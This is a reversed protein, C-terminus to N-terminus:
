LGTQKHAKGPKGRRMLLVKLSYAAEAFDPSIRLADSYHRIASKLDGQRESVVGLNYHTKANDPEIQLAKSYHRIASELDGQLLLVGGLTNHAKAFDPKIRLAESYHHIARDYRKKEEWAIGLSHHAVYNDVTVDVAHSFLSFSDKWHRVQFWTSIMCLTLAFGALAALVIRRHRLKQTLEAAGWALIIFLGILPIYTYRDAMAQRGVQVLGIVPVLTGLYWLWGIIFYPHRQMARIFLLSLSLLLLGSLSAQWLAVTGPHPYLVALDHPWFMRGIYTVCSVLANAIRVGLPLGELPAVAEGQAIFTTVSLIGSLALLPVKELLIRPVTSKPPGPDAKDKWRRIQLRGLPWYDMLLLVFPLTVVMPKAMLGLAFFLVVLLYRMAGPREAYRVYAWMTLMWFLTSLVDKREAVWAVSEVHLPHIAFLAAVFASRWLSGTMRLFLLFLLLGNAVHFLLSTLHHMGPRLWFLQCDLMHSVWTLPHWNAGCFTTFAWILGERTLGAQANYNETVYINDDFTVFDHSTVQWYGALTLVVLFLCIILKLPRSRM